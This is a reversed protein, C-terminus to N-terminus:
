PFGKCRMISCAQEASICEALKGCLGLVKGVWERYAAWAALVLQWSAADGESVGRDLAALWAV